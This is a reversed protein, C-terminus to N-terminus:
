PTQAARPKEQAPPTERRSEHIRKVIDAEADAEAKRGLRRYAISLQYHPEPNGPALEAARRLHEVAEAARGRAVLARGLTVRAEYLDPNIEIARALEKMGEETDAGGRKVLLVGVGLHGEAARPERAALERYAALAGAGDGSEELSTALFFRARADDPKLAAAASFARAAAAPDGAGYLARGLTFQADFSEPALAAAERASKLAGADDGRVALVVALLVLTDATRADPKSADAGQTHADTGQRHADATQAHAGVEGAGASKAALRAAEVARRALPEAEAARGADFTALAAGYLASPDGPRRAALAGFLEAAEGYRGENFLAYGLALAQAYADDAVPASRVREVVQAVRAPPASQQAAGRAFVAVASARIFVAAFTASLAAFAAALAAQKLRKARARASM